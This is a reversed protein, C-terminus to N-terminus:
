AGPLLDPGKVVHDLEDISAEYRECRSPQGPIFITLTSGNMRCRGSVASEM